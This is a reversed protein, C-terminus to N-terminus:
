QPTAPNLTVIKADGSKVSVREADRKNRDAFDIQFHSPEDDEPVAVVIYDGAIM